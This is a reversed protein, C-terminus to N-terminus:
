AEVLKKFAHCILEGMVIVWTIPLTIIFIPIALWGLKFGMWWWFRDLVTTM